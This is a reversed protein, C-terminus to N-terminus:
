IAFRNCSVSKGFDFIYHQTDALFTIGQALDTAGTITYKLTNTGSYIKDTLPQSILVSKVDYFKGDTAISIIYNKIGLGDAYGDMVDIYWRNFDGSIDPAYYIFVGDLSENPKGLVSDTINLIFDNNTDSYTPHYGAPGIFIQEIPLPVGNKMINITIDAKNDLGDWQPIVWCEFTGQELRLNSCIPLSITQGPTNIVVGNNYKAPVLSLDGTTTIPEPNLLSLGLTWSQLASEIIQPPAHVITTVINAMSALTPGATFSQMAAMLADRYRERDFTTDLMNLIPIDILTGFNNLLADRLAGVKYTVYYAEGISLANSQRFDLYNDGYEYSIIINDILYSYDIFYDGKNYDIIVRAHDDITYSYTLLVSDNVHPSNYGSLILKLPSGLIVTGVNSSNWLPLEDSLRTISVNLVIEPSSYLLNNNALVYYNVGDFQVAHYEQFILPNVTITNGNFTCATAFNIPDTNNGLDDYEYLGRIFKIPQSIGPSFINNFFTGVQGSLMSYPFSINNNLLEENSIDFTSPLIINASFNTYVFYKLKPTLASFRYYIDNINIINPNQPIIYGRKYSITGISFNQTPVVLCYVIGNLYDIQYNGVNILRANNQTQTLNNDFYVEQIFINSNSLAASTNISSGIADNSSGIINNNALFITFLNKSPSIITSSSVILIENLIDQFSAVEGIINQINPATNYTFFIQNTTWYLPKYIEGTTENFIRFVDTVPFNLPQIENLALLRNNIPENLAEIHASVKYDIGQRLVDEYNYKINVVSGILSGSPLAAIDGTNSIYSYDISPKFVYRYTYTALPPYAGTGTKNIDPGFVYVTGAIYDVSYEGPNSPLYNLSFPVEYIFAPHLNGSGQIANPDIFIVDGITGLVDQANVIPAHKLTFINELVPVAERGSSLNTDISLTTSGVVRGTDKYQYSVQVAVIDQTSFLPDNLISKNLRIQNNNLQLYTFAFDPDYQSSLIQYGTDQINYVYPSLLSGYVFTISNVIIVFMESLNLTFTELNFTGNQNTSNVILSESNPTALLSVDYTPFSQYTTLNQLTANTPNLGVRLVEYASEENLRDFPAGDYIHQEDSVTYSLYNENGSQRIDYLSQALTTALGNIYNSIISGAEINYVNNQFFNTLFQQIPNATTVLGVILQRNTLGDMLLSSTGNFSKFPLSTTSQFIIYYAALPTLPQTLILLTNNQVVVQIILPDPAGPTQSSLLINQVDIEESLQDSFTATINSSDVVIVSIIRLNAM